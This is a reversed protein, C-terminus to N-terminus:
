IFLSSLLSVSFILHSSSKKFQTETQYPSKSVEQMLKGYCHFLCFTELSLHAKPSTKVQKENTHCRHLFKFSSMVMHTGYLKKFFDSTQATVGGFDTAPFLKDVNVRGDEHRKHHDEQMSPDRRM